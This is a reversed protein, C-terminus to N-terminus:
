PVIMASRQLLLSFGCLYTVEDELQNLSQVKQICIWLIAVIGAQETQEQQVVATCQFLNKKMPKNM